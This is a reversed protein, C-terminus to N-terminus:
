DGHDGSGRGGDEEMMIMILMMRLLVCALLCASAAFTDSVSGSIKLKRVRREDRRSLSGRSDDQRIAKLCRNQRVGRDREAKLPSRSRLAMYRELANRGEMSSQSPSRHVFNCMPSSRIAKSDRATGARNVFGLSLTFGAEYGKRRRATSSAAERLEFSLASVHGATILCLTCVMFVHKAWKWRALTALSHLIRGECDMQLRDERYASNAKCMDTKVM